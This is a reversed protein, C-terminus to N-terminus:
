EHRRINLGVRVTALLNALLDDDFKQNGFEDVYFGPYNIPLIPVYPTFPSSINLGFFSARGYRESIRRIPVLYVEDRKGDNFRVEETGGDVQRIVSAFTTNEVKLIQGERLLRLTNKASRSLPNNHLYVKKLLHFLCELTYM